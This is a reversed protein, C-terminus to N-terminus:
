QSIEPDDNFPAGAAWSGSVPAPILERVAPIVEPSSLDVSAVSNTPIM